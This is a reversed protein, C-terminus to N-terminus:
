AQAADLGFRPLTLTLTDGVELGVADLWARQVPVTYISRRSKLLTFQRANETDADTEEDLLSTVEAERALLHKTKVATDDEVVFRQAEKIFDRRSVIKV